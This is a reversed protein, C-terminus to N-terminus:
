SMWFYGSGGKEPNEPDVPIGWQGTGRNPFVNATSGWSNKILWAGNEPPQHGSLFNEAPYNDDWGVITVTHNGATIMGRQWTYHSWTETNFYEGVGGNEWPKSRDSHFGIAVARKQLLQEKIALTAAENYMYETDDQMGSPSDNPSPLLYAGTLIYDRRFRFEENMAWDDDISYSYDYLTGDETERQAILGESGRYEYVPDSSESVPGIGMLFVSAPMVVTGEDFIDHADQIDVPYIGEGNQSNAPDDLGTNTFYALQKESLDLTKYADPDGDLVSGLISTEAAAMAAFAWCDGLPYQLRVPTVYCRDGIGDGDTDVSRLDFSAPLDTTM